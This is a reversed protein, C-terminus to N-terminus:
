PEGTKKLAQCARTSTAYKPHAAGTASHPTQASSRTWSPRGRTEAAPRASQPYPRNDVPADNPYTGSAFWMSVSLKVLEALFGDHLLFGSSPARLM